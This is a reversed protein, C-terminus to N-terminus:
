VIDVVGHEHFVALRDADHDFRSQFVFRVVRADASAADVAARLAELLVPLRAPEDDLLREAGSVLVACPGDVARVAGELADWSPALTEPPQLAQTWEDFLDDRTACARGVVIRADIEDEAATQRLLWLGTEGSRLLFGWPADRDLLEAWDPIRIVTM